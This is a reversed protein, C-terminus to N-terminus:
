CLPQKHIQLHHWIKQNNHWTFEDSHSSYLPSRGKTRVNGRKGRNLSVAPWIEGECVWLAQQKQGGECRLLTDALRWLFNNVSLCLLGLTRCPYCPGTVSPTHTLRFVEKYSSIFQTNLAEAPLCLPPKHSLFRLPQLPGTNNWRWQSYVCLAALQTLPVLWKCNKLPNCM